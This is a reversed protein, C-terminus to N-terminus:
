TLIVLVNIFSWYCAKAKRYRVTEIAGSNVGPKPVPIHWTMEAPPQVLDDPGSDQLYEHRTEKSKQDSLEGFM